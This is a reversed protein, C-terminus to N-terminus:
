TFLVVATLAVVERVVITQLRFFGPSNLTMLLFASGM